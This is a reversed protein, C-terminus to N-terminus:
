QAVKKRRKIGPRLVGIPVVLKFPYGRRQKSTLIALVEKQGTKPNVREGLFTFKKKDKPKM